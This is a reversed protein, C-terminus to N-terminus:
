FVYIVDASFCFSPQSVTCSPKYSVLGCLRNWIYRAKTLISALIRGIIIYTICMHVLALELCHQLPNAKALMPSTQM